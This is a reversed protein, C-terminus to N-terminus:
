EMLLTTVRHDARLPIVKPEQRVQHGCSEAIHEAYDLIRRRLRSRRTTRIHCGGEKWRWLDSMTGLQRGEQLPFLPDQRGHRGTGVSRWSSDLM